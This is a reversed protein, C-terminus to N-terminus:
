YSSIVLAYSTMLPLAFLKEAFTGSGLMSLKLNSPVLLSTTIM